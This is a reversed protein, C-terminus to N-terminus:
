PKSTIMEFATSSNMSFNRRVRCRSPASSTPCASRRDIRKSGWRRIPESAVCGSPSPLLKPAASTSTSVTCTKRLILGPLARRLDDKTPYDAQLAPTLDPDDYAEEYIVLLLAFCYLLFHGSGCAPDLIKIERPDKKPRHPIATIARLLQEQSADANTGEIVRRRVENAIDGFVEDWDGYGGGHRDARAQSFLVDLLDQTSFRSLDRSGQDRRAEGLAM